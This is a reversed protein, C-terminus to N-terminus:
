ANDAVQEMADKTCSILSKTHGGDWDAQGQCKGQDNEAYYWDNSAAHGTLMPTADGDGEVVGLQHEDPNDPDLLNTNQELYTEPLFTHLPEQIAFNKHKEKYTGADYLGLIMAHATNFACDSIQNINIDRNYDTSGPGGSDKYESAVLMHCGRKTPYHPSNSDLWDIFEEGLASYSTNASSFGPFNSSEFFYVNYEGIETTGDASTLDNFGSDIASSVYSKCADEDYGSENPYLIINATNSGSSSGSYLLQLNSMLYVM